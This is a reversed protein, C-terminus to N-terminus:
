PYKAPSGEGLGPVGALKSLMSLELVFIKQFDEFTQYTLILVSVVLFLMLSAFTLKPPGELCKHEALNSM